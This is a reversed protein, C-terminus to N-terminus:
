KSLIFALKGGGGKSGLAGAGNTGGADTLGGGGGGGGGAGTNAGADSPTLGATGGSGVSGFSGGRGGTAGAGGPGAGGGGGGAGAGWNFMMTPGGTGAVGPAGGPFGRSSAIGFNFAHLTPVNASIGCGGIGPAITAHQMAGSAVLMHPLTPPSWAVSPGGRAYSTMTSATAPPGVGGGSGGPFRAIVEGTSAVAVTTDAGNSGATLASACTGGNGITILYTELPTLPIRAIEPPAGGGGGGSPYAAAISGAGAGAPNAGGGGAGGGGYGDALASNVDPPCVWLSTTKFEIFGPGNTRLLQWGTGNYLVEASSSSAFRSGTPHNTMGIRALLAGSPTAIDAYGSATSGTGEVYFLLRDGGTAGSLGLSYTRASTLTPIRVIQNAGNPQFTINADPGTAVSSVIRGAGTAVVLSMLSDAYGARKDLAATTASDVANMQASTLKEGVGWGQSYAREITV